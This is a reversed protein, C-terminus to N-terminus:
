SMEKLFKGDQATFFVSARHERGVFASRQLAVLLSNRVKMSDDRLALPLRSHRKFAGLVAIEPPFAQLEYGVPMTDPVRDAFQERELNRPRSARGSRRRSFRPKSRERGTKAALPKKSSVGKKQSQEIVTTLVKTGM